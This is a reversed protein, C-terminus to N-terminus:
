VEQTELWSSKQLQQHLAAVAILTLGQGLVELWREGAHGPRKNGKGILKMALKMVDPAQALRVENSPRRAAEEKRADCPTEM